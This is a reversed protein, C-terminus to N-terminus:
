FQAVATHIESSSLAHQLYGSCWNQSYHWPLNLNLSSKFKAFILINQIFTLFSQGGSVKGM